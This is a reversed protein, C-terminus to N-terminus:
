SDTEVQAWFSNKRGHAKRISALFDAQQPQIAAADALQEMQLLYDAAHHYARSRGENLIDLLLIRYLKWAELPYDQALAKAVATLTSYFGGSMETERRLILQAARDLENIQVLFHAAQDSSGHGEALAAAREHAEPTESDSTLALISGFTSMSPYSAFEKWFVERAEDMRGLAALIQSKLRPHDYSESSGYKLHPKELHALAEQLRGAAFLRRAIPVAETDEQHESKIIAIYEDVDGLGDAIQKLWGAIRRRGSDHTDRDAALGGLDDKLRRQMARLGEPGLAAVFAPIMDDKLSYDNAHIHGYVLTALQQPNRQALGAWAQGWLTVARQGTFWLHEYSGAAGDICKEVIGVFDALLREAEVSCGRDILSQISVIADDLERSIEPMMRYGDQDKCLQFAQQMRDRIEDALLGAQERPTAFDLLSVRLKEDEQCRDILWGILGPGSIAELYSKLETDTIRHAM